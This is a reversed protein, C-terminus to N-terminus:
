VGLSVLVSYTQPFLRGLYVLSTLGLSIPGFFPLLLTKKTNNNKSHVMFSVKVASFLPMKTM